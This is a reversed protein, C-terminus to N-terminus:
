WLACCNGWAITWLYMDKLTSQAAISSAPLRCTMKNYQLAFYSYVSDACRNLTTNEIKGIQIWVLFGFWLPEQEVHLLLSGSCLPPSTTHRTVRPEKVRLVAPGLNCWLWTKEHGEWFWSLTFTAEAQVQAQRTDKSIKVPMSEVSQTVGHVTWWIIHNNTKRWPRTLYNGVLHCMLTLFAPISVHWMCHSEGPISAQCSFM